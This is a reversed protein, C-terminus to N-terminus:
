DRRKRRGLLWGVFTSLLATWLLLHLWFRTAPSMHAMRAGWQRRVGRRYTLTLFGNSISDILTRANASSYMPPQSLTDDPMPTKDPLSLQATVVADSDSLTETSLTGDATVIGTYQQFPVVLRTEAANDLAEQWGDRRGFLLAGVSFWPAPLITDLTGTAGAVVVPVGLWASQRHVDTLLQYSTSDVLWRGLFGLDVAPVALNDSVQLLMDSSALTHHLVILVDIRAAYSEWLDPHATDWGILFGINGLPTDAITIRHGDRYFVREWLFPYRQDYHWQQGDPAVLFARHYTDEHDVIHLGGALYIGHETAQAHLWAVTDDTLRETTEYTTEAFTIGTNFAAPLVVLDAGAQAAQAIQTAARALREATPATTGDMQIAAISLSRPM